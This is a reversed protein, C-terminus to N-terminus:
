HSMLVPVTASDVITRTVGGLVREKWRAHGYAGMVLLDYGEGAAFSLLADGSTEDIDNRLEAYSANVGHRALTATVDTGPARMPAGSGPTNIRAVTVRQAGALLPMADYLARASERSGNWAVLVRSGVAEHHGAYPLMLVPRGSAMVVSEPFRDAIYTQPDDPDDQGLIVLDAYRCHAVVSPEASQSAAIWEGKVGARQLEARFIRETAGRQEEHLKRQTEFWSASGAMAHFGRPDPMFTAFLGTLHADFRRAFRLAIELRAQVRNSTDLHVLLTKYTM